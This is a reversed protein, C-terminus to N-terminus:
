KVAKFAPIPGLNAVPGLNVPSFASGLGELFVAGASRDWGGRTGAVGRGACFAGPQGIPGNEKGSYILGVTVM